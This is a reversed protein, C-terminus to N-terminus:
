AEEPTQWDFTYEGNQLVTNITGAASVLVPVGYVRQIERRLRVEMEVRDVWRENVLDPIHLCAGTSVFGMNALFLAQRNPPIQFGDQVTNALEMANPGYFACQIRLDQHRQSVYQQEPNLATYANADPAAEVVAYALWNISIDPMKPPAIQWKPRVLTGNLGSIGVLVTQIFQNLTLNGSIPVTSKPLLYPASM